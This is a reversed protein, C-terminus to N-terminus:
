IVAEASVFSHWTSVGASPCMGDLILGSIYNMNRYSLSGNFCMHINENFKAEIDKLSYVCMASKAQPEVTISRSPSFVGIMIPDGPELGMSAALHQGAPVVKADQILNYNVMKGAVRVNCQLTVQAM